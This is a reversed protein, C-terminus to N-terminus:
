IFIFIYYFISRRKLDDSTQPFMIDYIKGDTNVTDILEYLLEIQREKPLDDWIQCPTAFPTGLEKVTAFPSDSSDTSHNSSSRQLIEIRPNPLPSITNGNNNDQILQQQSQQQQQEQQLLLLEKEILDAPPPPTQIFQQHQEEQQPIQQQNVLTIPYQPPTSPPTPPAYSQENIFRQIPQIPQLPQIPQIPQEVNNYKEPSIMSKSQHINDNEIIMEPETYFTSTDFSRPQQQALQNDPSPVVPIEEFVIPNILLPQKEISAPTPLLPPELVVNNNNNNNDNEVNPILTPQILLEDAQFMQQQQQQLDKENISNIIQPPENEEPVSEVRLSSFFEPNYVPQPTSSKNEFLCVSKSRNNDPIKSYQLLEATTLSTSTQNNNNDNNGSRMPNLSSSKAMIGTLSSLSVYRM